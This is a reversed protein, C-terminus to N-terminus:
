GLDYVYLAKDGVNRLLDGITISEPKEVTTSAGLVSRGHMLDVANGKQQLYAKAHPSSLRRFYLLVYSLQADM